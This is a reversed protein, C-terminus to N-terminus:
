LSSFAPYPPLAGSDPWLDRLRDSLEAFAARLRPLGGADALRRVAEDSRWLLMARLGSPSRPAIPGDAELAGPLRSGLNFAAWCAAALAAEQASVPCRELFIGRLQGSLEAPLAALCWCTPWAVDFYSYTLAPHQFGAFDFDFLRLRGDSWANNDPCTDLPSFAARAGARWFEELRELEEGLDPLPVVEAAAPRFPRLLEEAPYPPPGGLREFAESRGETRASMEGLLAAHAALASTAEVADTGLLLDALSPGAVEEMVLLRATSISGLLRPVSGAFGVTALFAPTALNARFARGDQAVKAVV